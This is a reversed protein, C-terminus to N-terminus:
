TDYYKRALTMDIYANTREISGGNTTKQTITRKVSIPAVFEGSNNTLRLALVVNSPVLYLYGVFYIGLMRAIHSGMLLKDFTVLWENCFKGSFDDINCHRSKVEAVFKIVGNDDIGFADIKAAGTDDTTYFSIGSNRTVIELAKSQQAAAIRGKDTNIDLM